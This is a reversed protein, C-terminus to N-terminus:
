NSLKNKFISKVKQESKTKRKPKKLNELNDYNQIERKNSSKKKKTTAIGHTHTQEDNIQPHHKGSRSPIYDLDYSTSEIKKM